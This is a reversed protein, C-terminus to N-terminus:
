NRRKKKWRKWDSYSIFDFSVQILSHHGVGQGHHGVGNSHHGGKNGFGRKMKLVIGEGDSGKSNGVVSALVTSSTTISLIIASLISTSYM